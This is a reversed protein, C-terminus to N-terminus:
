PRRKMKKELEAMRERLSEYYEAQMKAESEATAKTAKQESSEGVKSEVTEKASSMGDKFKELFSKSVDATVAPTDVPLPLPQLGILRRFSPNFLLTTQVLGTAGATIFYFQLGAPLWSTFLAGVPVLVMTMMKMMQQQQPTSYRSTMQM